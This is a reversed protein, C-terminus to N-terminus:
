SCTDIVKKPWNVQELVPLFDWVIAGVGRAVPLGDEHKLSKAGSAQAVLLLEPTFLVVRTDFEWVLACAAGASRWRHIATWQNESLGGGGNFALRHGSTSKAEIFLARGNRATWVGSFDLFPNKLHIMQVSGGRRFIRMPPDVKELTAIGRAEYAGATIEIEKEFRRGDNKWNSANANM